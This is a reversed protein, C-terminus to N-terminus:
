VLNNDIMASQRDLLQNKEAILKSKEEILKAQEHILRKQEEILAKQHTILESHAEVGGTNGGGAVRSDTEYVTIPEIVPAPGQLVMETYFKHYNFMRRRKGNQGNGNGNGNSHGNGNGNGNGNAHGKFAPTPKINLRFSKSGNTGNAHPKPAVTEAQAEQALEESAAIEVSKNRRLKRALMLGGTIGVCGIVGLGIWFAKFGRRPAAPPPSTAIEAAQSAQNVTEALATLQSLDRAAVKDGDKYDRYGEGDKFTLGQLLRKIDPLDNGTGSRRVFNAELVGRRGLFKAVYCFKEDKQGEMRFAFDLYNRSPHYEPKTEWAVHVLPPLGLAKNENNIQFYIAKLENTFENKINLEHDDLGGRNTDAIYGTDSWSFVIYWDSKASNILGALGKPEPRHIDRLVMRTGEADLFQLGQPIAMDAFGALSVSAPGFQWTSRQPLQPLDPSQAFSWDASALATGILLGRVLLKVLRVAPYSESSRCM